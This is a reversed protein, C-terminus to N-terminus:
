DSYIEPDIGALTYRIFPDDKEWNWNQPMSDNSIGNVKKNDEESLAIQPIKSLYEIYKYANTLDKSKIFSLIKKASYKSPIPHEWVCKLDQKKFFEARDKQKQTRPHLKRFTQEQQMTSRNIFDEAFEINDYEILLRVYEKARKIRDEKANADYFPMEMTKSFDACMKYSIERSVNAKEFFILLNQKFKEWKHRNNILRLTSKGNKPRM